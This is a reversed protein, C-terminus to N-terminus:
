GEIDPKTRTLLSVLIPFNDLVRVLEISCLFPNGDEDVYPIHETGELVFGLEKTKNRVEEVVNPLKEL